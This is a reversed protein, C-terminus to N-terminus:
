IKVDDRSKFELQLRVMVYSTKLDSGTSFYLIDSELRVMVYSTKLYRFIPFLCYIRSASGYCLINKFKVARLNIDESRCGFWLM